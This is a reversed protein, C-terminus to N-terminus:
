SQFLHNNELQDYPQSHVAQTLAANSQPEEVLCLLAHPGSASSVMIGKSNINQEEPECVFAQGAPPM